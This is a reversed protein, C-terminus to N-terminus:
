YGRPIAFVENKFMVIDFINTYLILSGNNSRAYFKHTLEATLRIITGDPELIEQKIDLESYSVPKYDKAEAYTYFETIKDEIKKYDIDEIKNSKFNNCAFLLLVSLAIMMNRKM